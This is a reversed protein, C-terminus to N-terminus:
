FIFTLTLVALDFTLDFDCLLTACRCGWGIDRRLKLKRCRITKQSVVQAIKKGGIAQLGM